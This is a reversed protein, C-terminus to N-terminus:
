NKPKALGRTELARLNLQVLAAKYEDEGLNKLKRFKQLGSFAPPSFKQLAEELQPIQMADLNYDPSTARRQAEEAERMEIAKSGAGGGTLEQGGGGAGAVGKLQRNKAAREAAKANRVMKTDRTIGPQKGPERGTVGEPIKKVEPTVNVKPDVSAGLEESGGETRLSERRALSAQGKTPTIRQRGAVGQSAAQELLSGGTPSGVGPPTPLPGSAQPRPPPLSPMGRGGGPPNGPPRNTLQTPPPAGGGGPPLNPPQSPPLGPPPPGSPPGGPPWQPGEIPPASGEAFKQKGPWEEEKLLYDLVDPHLTLARALRTFYSSAIGVAAGAGLAPVYGAGFVRMGIATAAGAPNGYTWRFITGMSKSRQKNIKSSKSVYDLVEKSNVGYKEVSKLFRGTFATDKGLVAAMEVGRGKAEKGYLNDATNIIDGFTNHIKEELENYFEWSDRMGFQTATTALKKTLDGYIKGMVQRQPGEVSSLARGVSSRFQRVKEFSWLGPTTAKADRLMTAILPHVKEPTKVADSWDSLITRSEADADIVGTPISTDIKQTLAVSREKAAADASEVAQNIKKAVNIGGSDVYADELARQRFMANIVPHKSLRNVAGVAEAPDVKAAKAAADAVKYDGFVASAKSAAFPALSGAISGLMEPWENKRAHEAAQVSAPGIIPITSVISAQSPNKIAEKLPAFVDGHVFWGAWHPVDGLTEPLGAAKLAARPAGFYWPEKKSEAQPKPQPQTAVPAPQPTPQQAPPKAKKFFNAPLTSPAESTPQPAVKQKKGSFFDAPLTAPAEQNQESM